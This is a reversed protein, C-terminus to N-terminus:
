PGTASADVRRLLAEAAAATNAADVQLGEVRVGRAAWTDSASRAFAALGGRAAAYAADSGDHHPLLVVILGGGQREMHRGFAQVALYPATLNARVAAEWEDPSLEDLPAASSQDHACVLIDCRGYRDCAQEAFAQVAAPDTADLLTVFQERGVAWAENAISNMAYEEGTVPATTGLALDAGAEALAIALARDLETGSGILAAIRGTLDLTM